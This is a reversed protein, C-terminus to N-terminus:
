YQKGRRIKRIDIVLFLFSSTAMFILVTHCGVKDRLFVDMKRLFYSMTLKTRPTHPPASQIILGHETEKLPLSMASQHLARVNFMHKLYEYTVSKQDHM